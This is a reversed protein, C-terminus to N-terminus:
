QRAGSFCEYEEIVCIAAFRKWAFEDIAEYTKFNTYEYSNFNTWYTSLSVLPGDFDVKVGINRSAQESVYNIICPMEKRWIEYM